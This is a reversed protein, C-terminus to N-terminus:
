EPRRGLEFGLGIKPTIGSVFPEIILRDIAWFFEPVPLRLFLEDPPFRILLDEIPLRRVRFPKDAAFQVDRFIAQIAMQSRRPFVFGREDELALRAINARDGIFLEVEVDAPERV